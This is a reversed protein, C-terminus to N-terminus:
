NKKLFQRCRSVLEFRFEKFGIKRLEPHLYCALDYANAADRNFDQEAIACQESLPDLAHAFRDYLCALRALDDGSVLQEISSADGPTPPM